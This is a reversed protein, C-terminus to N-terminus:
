QLDHRAAHTIRAYPPRSHCIAFTAKQLLSFLNQLFAHGIPVVQCGHGLFGLAEELRTRSTWSKLLLSHVVDIARKRKSPAEMVTTDINFGLHMVSTRMEDKKPETQIRFDDCVSDVTM